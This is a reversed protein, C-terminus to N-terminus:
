LGTMKWSHWTGALYRNTKLHVGLVFQQNQSLNLPCLLLELPCLCGLLCYSCGTPSEFTNFPLKWMVRLCAIFDPIFRFLISCLDDSACTCESGWASYKWVPYAHLSLWTQISTQTVVFLCVSSLKETVRQSCPTLMCLWSDALCKDSGCKRKWVKNRYKM